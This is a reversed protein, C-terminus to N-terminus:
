DGKLIGLRTNVRLGNAALGSLINSLGPTGVAAERRNELRADDPNRVM